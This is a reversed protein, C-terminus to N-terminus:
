GGIEIKIIKWEPIKKELNERAMRELSAESVARLEGRFESEIIARVKTEGM